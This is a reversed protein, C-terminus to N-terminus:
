TSINLYKKILLLAIIDFELNKFKIFLVQFVDM